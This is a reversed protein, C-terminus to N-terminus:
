KKKFINFYTSLMDDSGDMQSLMVNDMGLKNGWMKKEKLDIKYGKGQKIISFYCDNYNTNTWVENGDKKRNAVVVAVRKFNQTYKGSLVQGEILQNIIECPGVDMDEIKQELQEKEM